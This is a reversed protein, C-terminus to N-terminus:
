KIVVIKNKTLYDIIQLYIKLKMQKKLIKENKEIIINLLKTM